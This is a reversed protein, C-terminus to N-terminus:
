LTKSFKLIDCQWHLLLQGIAVPICNSIFAIVELSVKLEPINHVMPIEAAVPEALKGPIKSDRFFLQLVSYCTSFRSFSNGQFALFSLMSEDYSLVELFVLM